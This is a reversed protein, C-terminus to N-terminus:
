RHVYHGHFLLEETDGRVCEAQQRDRRSNISNFIQAFVFANFVLTDRKLENNIQVSENGAVAKYGFIANGAFHFVLIM